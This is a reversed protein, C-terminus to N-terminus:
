ILPMNCLKNNNVCQVYLISSFIIATYIFLQQGITLSAHFTETTDTKNYFRCEKDRSIRISGSPTLGEGWFFCTGLGHLELLNLLM